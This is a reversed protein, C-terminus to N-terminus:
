AFSSYECGLATCLLRVEEEPVDKRLYLPSSDLADYWILYATDGKYAHLHDGVEPEALSKMLDALGAVNEATMPMHYSRPRPWITGPKVALPQEAPRNQLYAVVIPAISTGEIYLTTGPPLLEALKLLLEGYRNRCTM